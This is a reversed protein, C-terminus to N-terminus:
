LRPNAAHAVCTLAYHSSRAVGQSIGSALPISEDGVHRRNAIDLRDTFAEVQGPRFESTHGLWIRLLSSLSAQDTCDDNHPALDFGGIIFWRNPSRSFPEQFLITSEM